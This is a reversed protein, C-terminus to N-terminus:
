RIIMKKFFGTHKIRILHGTNGRMAKIASDFDDLM